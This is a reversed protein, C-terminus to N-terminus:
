LGTIKWLDYLELIIKKHKESHGDDVLIHGIEHLFTKLDPNKSVYIWQEEENCLGIGRFEDEALKLSWNSINYKQMVYKFFKIAQESSLKIERDPFWNNETAYFDPSYFQRKETENM